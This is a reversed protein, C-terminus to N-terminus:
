DNYYIQGNEIVIGTDALLNNGYLQYCIFINYKHSINDLNNLDLSLTFGAERYDIGDNMQKTLDNQKNRPSNLRISYISQSSEDRLWLYKNYRNYKQSNGPFLIWGSINLINSSIDVESVEWILKEEILYDMGDIKKIKNGYVNCFLVLPIALLIMIICTVLLFEKKNIKINKM